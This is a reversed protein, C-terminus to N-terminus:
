KRSGEKYFPGRVIVAEIGPRGKAQITLTQGLSSVDKAVYGMGIGTETSPGFSGSTVRGVERGDVRIAYGPRPIGRGVVEFGVLKRKLGGAKQNVLAEKGLFDAKDLKVVWGLGAELPSTTQDIDNGYLCYRVELRLTDRAGLGVPEIDFAKGAEFLADWVGAGDDWDLYLEFGDEGTYGTRSVLCQVGAVEARCWQYFGLDGFPGKGVKSIVDEAKPGQLALLTTNASDNILEAGPERHDELWAWDKAENAANVVLVFSDELRYVLLDDVVGGDDYCMASYLVDGVKLKSADNTIWRNVAKEANPGKVEFEGMHSVDFLGVTTRVCRHEELISRYQIPMWWGAFSVM